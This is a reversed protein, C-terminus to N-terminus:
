IAVSEGTWVHTIDIDCKMPTTIVRKAASVMLDAKYQALEHAVEIPAEGLLEDHIQILLNYGNDRLYSDNCVDYMAVKTIDAATGQIRSNVLQRTAEEIKSRNDIIKLGELEAQQYIAIKQNYTAKLLKATYEEKVQQSVEKISLAQGSFDLPDFRKSSITPIFTFYPLQFDPVYRRRGIATEVYGLEWAMEESQKQFIAIGPFTQLIKNYMRQVEQLTVNLGRGQLDKQVTSVQKCYMIALFLAKVFERLEKGAPNPTGDPFKERCQEYEKNFMFSAVWAYVDLGKEYADHLGKDGSMHALIRPEQQSFDCSILVYGPRARFMKRIDKNKSPINQLNPDASSFRGTDAGYQRFKSHLRGTVSCVVSPLKDIYTSVLKSLSRYELIKAIIPHDLKLLVEESTSKNNSPIKIVDYLLNSLQKPSNPNVTGGKFIPQRLIDSRYPILEDEFSTKAQELMQNYKISLRKAEELDLTISNQEMQATYQVLPLEVETMLRYIAENGQKNFEAIQYNYLDYTMYSDMAAYISATHPPVTRIDLGNFFSDFSAVDSTPDFRDRWMPKLGAVANSDLVRQGLYVDWHVPLWVNLVKNYMVRMDYTATHYIFTLGNDVGYLIAERVTNVSLQGKVEVGTIHSIHGVPIYIAKEGPTYLSVGAFLCQIPDLANGGSETDLSCKGNEIANDIFQYLRQETTVLECLDQYKGLKQSILAEATQIQGLIGSGGRIPASKSPANKVKKALVTDGASSGRVTPLFGM